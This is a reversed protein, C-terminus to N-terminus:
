PLAPPINNSLPLSSLDPTPPTGVLGEHVWSGREIPSIAHGIVAGYRVIPAGRGLDTLAVKHAEPIAETLTLGDPFRTGASLGGPNVVIAVNDREHVRIYLPREPKANSM